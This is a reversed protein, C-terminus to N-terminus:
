RYANLGDFAATALTSDQHSTVALGVYVRAPLMVTITGLFRWSLGDGSGDATFTDGRRRLRLWEPASGAVVAAQRSNGSTARRYQLALGNAASALAMVHKSGPQLSERFMVGAKAWPHTGELREVRVVVTGDGEWAHHYYRFADARGWIDAGSGALTVTPGPGSTSSSGAVGVNGIDTSAFAPILDINDFTATATGTDDHSTVAFGVLLTPSLGTFQQTPGIPTWQPNGEIHFFAAVTDGVRRLRLWVGPALHPGSTHVTEGDTRRRRQFALGAVNTPTAFLSAHRAGPALSERIMLGAKTWVDTEEVSTVRAMIDFDGPLSRYVYHFEDARRWIDAGSATIALTEGDYSASGAIGVAGVDAHAWGPPAAAPQISVTVRRRTLAGTEDFAELVLQGATNAPGPDRWVCRRPSGDSGCDDM